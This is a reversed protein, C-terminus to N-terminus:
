VVRGAGSGGRWGPRRRPYLYDVGATRSLSQLLHGLVQLVQGLRDLIDGINGSGTGLLPPPLPPQSLNLPVIGTNCSGALTFSDTRLARLISRANNLM